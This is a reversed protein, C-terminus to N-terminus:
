FEIFPFWSTYQRKCRAGKVCTINRLNMSNRTNVAHDKRSSLQIEGYSYVVFNRSVLQHIRNKGIAYCDWYPKQAGWQRLWQILVCLKSILYNSDELEEEKEFTNQSNQNWTNGIFKLIPQWDTYFTMTTSESPNRLIWVNIKLKLKLFDLIHTGLRGQRGSIGRDVRVSSM